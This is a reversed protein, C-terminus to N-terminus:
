IGFALKLVPMHPSCKSIAVDPCFKFPSQLSVQYMSLHTFTSFMYQHWGTVINMICSCM